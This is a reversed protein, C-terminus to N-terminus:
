SGNIYRKLAALVRLQSISPIAGEMESVEEESGQGPIKKKM